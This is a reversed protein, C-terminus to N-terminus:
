TRLDARWIRYDPPFVARPWVPAAFDPRYANQAFWSSVFIVFSSSIPGREHEEHGEHHGKEWPLSRVSVTCCASRAPHNPQVPSICEADIPLIFVRRAERRVEKPRSMGSAEGATGRPAAMWEVAVSLVAAFQDGAVTGAKWTVNSSEIERLRGADREAAANGQVAKDKVRRSVSERNSRTYGSGQMCECEAARSHEIVGSELLVERHIVVGPEAIEFAARRSAASGGERTSAAGTNEELFRGVCPARGKNIISAEVAVVVGTGVCNEHARSACGIASEDGIGTMLLGHATGDRQTVRRRGRLAGKDAVTPRRLKGVGAVQLDVVGRGATVGGENQIACVRRSGAGPREPKVVLRCCAIGREHRVASGDPAAM